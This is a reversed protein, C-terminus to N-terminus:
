SNEKSRHPPRGINFDVITAAAKRIAAVMRVDADPATSASLFAIPRYNEHGYRTGRDRAYIPWTGTIDRLEGAWALRDEVGSPVQGVVALAPTGDPLTIHAARM